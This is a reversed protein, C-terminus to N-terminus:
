RLSGPASPDDLQQLRRQAWQLGTVYGMTEGRAECRRVVCRTWRWLVVACIAAQGAVCLLSETLYSVLVLNAGCLVLVLAYLAITRRM